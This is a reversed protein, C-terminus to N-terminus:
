TPSFQKTATHNIHKLQIIPVILHCADQIYTSSNSAELYVNTILPNVVDSEESKAATSLCSSYKSSLIALEACTINAFSSFHKIDELVKNETAILYLESAKHLVEIVMATFQAMFLIAENHTVQPNQIREEQDTMNQQLWLCAKSRTELLKDVNVTLNLSEIHQKVLTSFEHNPNEDEDKTMEEDYLERIRDLQSQIEKLDDGFHSLLAIQVKQESEKSLMELAELHVLGKFDDFATSYHVQNERNPEDTDKIESEREKTERLIESLTPKGGKLFQRKKKLHPDGDQLIDMTKRGILELTDLSGTIVKSSTQELVTTLSSVGSVINSVSGFFTHPQGKPENSSSESEAQRESDKSTSQEAALKEPSPVGLTVEVGEFVSNLGSGVQTTFTTVSSTASSLISSGWSGWGWSSGQKYGKENEERLSDLPNRDKSHSTAEFKGSSLTENQPKVKENQGSVSKIEENQSATSATSNRFSHRSTSEPTCALVDEDVEWGADWDGLGEDAVCEALNDQSVVSCCLDNQPEVNVPSCVSASSGQRTDETKLTENKACCAPSSIESDKVPLEVHKAAAEEHLEEEGEDASEFASEDTDSM